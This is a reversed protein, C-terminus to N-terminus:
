NKLANIMVGRNTHDKHSSSMQPDIKGMRKLHALYGEHSSYIDSIAEWIYNEPTNSENSLQSVITPLDQDLDKLIPHDVLGQYLQAYTEILMDMAFLHHKLQKPSRLIAEYVPHFDASNKVAMKHIAIFDRLSPNTKLEKIKGRLFDQHQEIKEAFNEFHMDDVNIKVDKVEPQSQSETVVSHYRESMQDLEPIMFELRQLLPAIITPSESALIKYDIVTSKILGIIGEFSTYGLEHLKHLRLLLKTDSVNETNEAKEKRENVFSLLYLRALTKEDIFQITEGNSEFSIIELGPVKGIGIIGGLEEAFLEFDREHGNSLIRGDLRKSTEYREVTSEGFMPIDSDTAKIEGHITAMKGLMEKTGPINTPVTTADLDNITVNDNTHLKYALSGIYGWFPDVGNNLAKGLKLAQEQLAPDLSEFITKAKRARLQDEINESNESIIKVPHAFGEPIAEQENLEPHEVVDDIRHHFVYLQAEEEQLLAKHRKKWVADASLGSDQIDTLHGMAPIEYKEEMQLAEEPTLNHGEHIYRILTEEKRKKLNQEIEKNESNEQAKFHDLMSGYMKLVFDQNGKSLGQLEENKSLEKLESDLSDMFAGKDEAKSHLTHISAIARSEEELHGEEDEHGMATAPTHIENRAKMAQAVMKLHDTIDAVDEDTSSRTSGKQNRDATTIDLNINPTRGFPDGTSDEFEAPSIGRGGGDAAVELPEKM